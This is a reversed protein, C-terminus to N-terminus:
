QPHVRSHVRQQLEDLTMRHGLYPSVSKNSPNFVQVQESAASV